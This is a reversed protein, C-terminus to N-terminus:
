RLRHELHELLRLNAEAGELQGARRQRMRCLSNGMQCAIADLLEMREAEFSSPAQGSEYLRSARDLEGKLGPIDGLKMANVINSAALCTALM